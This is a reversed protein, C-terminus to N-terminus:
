TIKKFRNFIYNKYRFQKGTRNKKTPKDGIVLYDLNKSVSSLTNGSNKDILSKAEARSIGDLKGTFMFTKNKLIGNKNSSQKEINLISNLDTVINTNLKNSFFDKMSNIQTYGIGDITLFKDFKKKEIIEIFSSINKLNDSIIKANEIGIHRIGLSYIFKQLSVSKSKEISKRLNNVSLRGWGDLNTILDYNLSFLDQPRRILKLEWFKEVVKKRFWWYKFSRKIYFTQDKRNCNKWM